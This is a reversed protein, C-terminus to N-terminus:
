ERLAVTPELAAARRAPIALAILATGVVIAAAGTLQVPARADLGFVFSAALQSAWLQIAIGGIAGLMVPLLGERMIQSLVRRRDAGLAMRIGIERRRSAVSYAAIAYVGAAALVLAAISFATLLVLGLRQPMLVSAVHQELTMGDFVPVRADAAQMSQRLGALAGSAPARTRVFAHVQGPFDENTPDFISLYLHPTTEADVSGYRADDVVGIVDYVPADDGAAVRLRRGVANGTNWFKRAASASVLAVRGAGRDEEAFTRGHLVRMGLAEFWGDSVIALSVGVEPTDGQLGEPRFTMRMSGRMPRTMSVGTAQVTADARLTALTKRVYESRERGSLRELSPDATMMVVGAPKYGLDFGLGRQLGRAFLFGGGVMAVCLTVQLTVLTRGLPTRTATRGSERLVTNVDRRSTLWAPVLGFVLVSLLTLVVSAAMVVGNIRPALDDILLGGPLQYQGLLRLGLTAIGLGAAAGAAGLLASEVLMQGILRRRGAGLAIRMGIEQRRASARALLLNAVNACGLVLLVAAVVFLLLVFRELADRERLASSSLPTLTLAERAQGADGADEPHLDNYLRDLRGAAQALTVGGSMRGVVRLWTMNSGLAAPRGIFGTALDPTFAAPMWLDPVNALSLGRFHKPAVGVVIVPRANVRMTEGIVSPDSGFAARWFRYSLVVSPAAGSLEDSENLLRGAAPAVGLLDFYNGSVLTAPVRRVVGRRDVSVGSQNAYALLGDFGEARKQMERFDPYSQSWDIEALRDPERAAIPRLLTADALSIVATSSGIGLGLTLVAAITFGPQRSFMRLAFRLDQLLTQMMMTVQSSGGPAPAPLLSPPRRRERVVATAVDALTAWGRGEEFRRDIDRAIEPGYEARLDAPFLRSLLHAIRRRM